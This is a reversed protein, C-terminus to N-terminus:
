DVPGRVALGPTNLVHTYIMTTSVDKHGLLEQVTRIDYGNELLHTAFSHRFTHCSGHKNIGAIRIAEKVSRQLVNELVHHRREIGSRPDISRKAAPFIYQWGWERDANPYKRSLAFPLYVRGFGEKLDQEHLEKVRCLHMKLPEKLSAPLMTVRDTDGKTDRLTIQNCSFDIDKVRLRLCESIRLGAGYLLSVMIWKTGELQSIIKKAEEKTFVVPVRNRTKAREVNEIWGVEQKLVHRYLFLVSNLAQNQTSASVKAQVALHTLFEGIEREGMSAPHRKKHFFIFRQIWKVYSVETKLSYHKVRMVNRVQEPLSPRRANM